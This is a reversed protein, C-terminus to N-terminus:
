GPPSVIYVTLRDIDVRFFRRNGGKLFARVAAPVRARQSFASDVIIVNAESPLPRPERSPDSAEIHPLYAELVWPYGFVIAQGHDNGGDRLLKAAVSYDTPELTAVDVLHGIGALALALGAALGLGRSRVDDRRLLTHLASGALVLLPALWLYYYHPLAIPVVLSLYLFPALVATSLYIVLDRRVVFISTVVLTLLPITALPGISEWQFYANGWWPPHAYVQNGVTILHGVRAHERQFGIMRRAAELADGGMPLYSAVMVVAVAAALGITQLALLRTPPRASLSLALIPVILLLGTLKSSGALGVALGAAIAWRWAESECWRWGAYLAAALFALMLTELMAFRAMAGPSLVEGSVVLPMPLAAWLAAAFIGARAGVARRGLLLLFAGTVVSALAAVLRVSVIDGTGGVVQALGLLYKALPPHEVNVFFTGKSLYAQGAQTYLLEDPNWTPVGLKYFFSFLFLSALGAVSAAGVGLVRACAVTGLGIGLVGSAKWGFTSTPDRMSTAVLVAIL